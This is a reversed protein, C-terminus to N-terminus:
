IKRIPHRIITKWKDSSVKRIDSLYIEHHHRKDNIDTEYGNEQLYINMLEITKLEEEFPGLHM